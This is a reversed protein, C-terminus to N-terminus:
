THTYISYHTGVKVKKEKIGHKRADKAKAFVHSFESYPAARQPVPAQLLNSSAAFM